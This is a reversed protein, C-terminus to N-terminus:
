FKCIENYYDSMNNIYEQPTINCVAKFEHNFHPQDYFGTQAAIQTMNFSPNKMMRIAKNVRVLRTFSKVNIGITDGFIRNLHRESYYVQNALEKVSIKGSTHIIKDVTLVLESKVMQRGIYSLFIADLSSILEYINQSQEFLSYIKQYLSLDVMNMPLVINKLESQRIRIFKHLGYPQLEVILLCQSCNAKEGVVHTKTSAGFLNARVENGDFCFVITAGGSPIVTYSESIIYKNPFTITYNAIYSRLMENPLVYLFDEEKILIRNSIYGQIHLKSIM